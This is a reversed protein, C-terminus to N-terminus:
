SEQVEDLEALLEEDSLTALQFAHRENAIIDLLEDRDCTELGKVYQDALMSSITNRSKPPLKFKSARM